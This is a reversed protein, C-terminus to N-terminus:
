IFPVLAGGGGSRVASHARSRDPREPGALSCSAYLVEKYPLAGPVAAPHAILLSAPITAPNALHCSGCDMHMGAMLGAKEVPQDGARHGHEHHGFHAVAGQSEHGCYPTTGAWVTQFPVLVLLLILIWRRMAARIRHWGKLSHHAQLSGQDCRPSRM